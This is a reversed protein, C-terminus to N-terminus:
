EHEYEEINIGDKNVTIQIHDGFLTKMLEDDFQQLFSRVEGEIRKYEPSNWVHGDVEIEPFKHRSHYTCEDGDNFYPTYATWSIDKLEPYKEFIRRFNQILFKEGTHQLKEQIEKVQEKFATYELQLDETSM